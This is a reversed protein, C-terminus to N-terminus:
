SYSLAKNEYHKWFISPVKSVWTAQNHVWLTDSHWFKPVMEAKAFLKLFHKVKIDYELFYFIWVIEM